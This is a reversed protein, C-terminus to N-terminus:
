VTVVPDLGAVASRLLDAHRAVCEEAGFRTASEVALRRRDRLYDARGVFLKDMAAILEDRNAQRRFRAAGAASWNATLPDGLPNAVLHGRAPDDGIQERAGGVDSLVLPLGACLAEMPALAWGEFFSDLVFGDAAALLVAPASLNDRLHVRDRCPLSAHLRRLQRYYRGDDVHGVILLHAQPRVHALEAFASVLGYSNKQLCHRALSVFLYEQDLGLWDRAQARAVPARWDDHVGNPITVIRRAPFGPNGMLYQQRVLESVSVIASLRRSRAAETTWNAGFMDHMGHLTEIYPVGIHEATELVCEPLAGHASIVDPRWREIWSRSSSESAEHVTIGAAQLKRGLLGAPEGSASPSPMVGLVATAVHRAPLRRALLAVVEPLGGLDLNGCVLLCRLASSSAGGDGDAVSVLLPGGPQAQGREAASAGVFSMMGASAQARRNGILPESWTEIAASCPVWRAVARSMKERASTPLMQAARGALHSAGHIGAVFLRRM